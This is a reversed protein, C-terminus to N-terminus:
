RITSGSAPSIRPINAMGPPSWRSAPRGRRRSRSGPPARSRAHLIDIREARLLRVLAPVAAAMRLPDKVHAPFPLFTGGAAELEAVMRGGQAIVLPRAGAAALAAAIDVATREAGGADLRPLIQAITRGALVDDHEGEAEHATSQGDSRSV